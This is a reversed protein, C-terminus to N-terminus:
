EGWGGAETRGGARSVSGLAQGRCRGRASARRPEPWGSRSRAGRPQPSARPDKATCRPGRSTGCCSCIVLYRSASSSCGAGGQLARKLASQIIGLAIELLAQSTHLNGPAFQPSAPSSCCCFDGSEWLQLKVSSGLDEFGSEFGRPETISSDCGRSM